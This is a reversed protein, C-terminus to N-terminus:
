KRTETYHSLQRIDNPSLTGAAQKLLITNIIYQYFNHINQEQASYYRNQAQLLDFITQAGAKFGKDTNELGMAGEHEAVRSAKISDIGEMAGVYANEANSIAELYRQEVVDIARNYDARAQRLEAITLGGQIFNWSASIGIVSSRVDDQMLDGTDQSSNLSNADTYSATGSVTPMFDTKKTSMQAEAAQMDFQASLLALNQKKALTVWASAHDPTIRRIPFSKSFSAISPYVIGTINSLNQLSQIYSIKANIVQSHVLAAQQRAQNMETITAFRLNYKITLKRLFEDTFKEQARTVRLTDKEQLVALYGKVLRAMLDQAQASYLMVAAQVSKKSQKLQNLASFNFISQSFNVAYQSSNFNNTGTLMSKQYTAGGNASLILQPLLYSRSIPIDQEKSELTAKEQQFVPDNKVADLYALWLTESSAFVPSSFILVISLIRRLLSMNEIERDIDRRKDM